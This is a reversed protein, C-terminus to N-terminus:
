HPLNGLHSQWGQRQAGREKVEGRAMGLWNNNRSCIMAKTEKNM